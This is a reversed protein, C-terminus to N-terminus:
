DISANARLRLTWLAVTSLSHSFPLAAVPSAEFSLSRSASDNVVEGSASSSRASRVGSSELGLLRRLNLGDCGRRFSFRRSVRSCLGQPTPLQRKEVPHPVDGLLRPMLGVSLGIVQDVPNAPIETRVQRRESLRHLSIRRFPVISADEDEGL